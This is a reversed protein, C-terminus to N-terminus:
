FEGDSGGGGSKGGGNFGSGSNSGSSEGGCLAIIIDIAIEWLGFYTLIIVLAIGGFIYLYIM